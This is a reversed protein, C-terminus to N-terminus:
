ARLTKTVAPAQLARQGRPGSMSALSAYLVARIVFSGAYLETQAQGSSEPTGLQQETGPMDAEWSRRLTHVQDSRISGDRETGYHEGM